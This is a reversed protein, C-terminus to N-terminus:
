ETANKLSPPAAFQEVNPVPRVLEPVKAAPAFLSTHATTVTGLVEEPLAVAPVVLKVKRACDGMVEDDLSVMTSATVTPVTCLTVM